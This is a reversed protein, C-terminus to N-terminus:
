FRYTAWLGFSKIGIAPSWTRDIYEQVGFIGADATIDWHESLRFRLAPILGHQAMLFKDEEGSPLWAWASNLRLDLFFFDNHYPTFRVFPEAIMFINVVESNYGAGLGTGVAIFDNFELGVTPEVSASFYDTYTIAGTFGLDFHKEAIVSFHCSVMVILLISLKRM